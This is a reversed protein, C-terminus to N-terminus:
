YRILMLHKPNKFQCGYMSMREMLYLDVERVVEVYESVSSVDM